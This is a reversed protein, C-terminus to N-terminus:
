LLSSSPPRVMITIGRLDLEHLEALVWMEIEKTKTREGLGFELKRLQWFNPRALITPIGRWLGKVLELKGHFSLQIHNIMLSTIRELVAPIDVLAAHSYV